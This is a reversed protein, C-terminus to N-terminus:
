KSFLSIFYQYSFIIVIIEYFIMISAMLYLVNIINIKRPLFKFNYEILM